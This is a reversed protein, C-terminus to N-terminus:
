VNEQTFAGFMKSQLTMSITATNADSLQPNVLLAEIKGVWFWMSNAVTGLGTTSCAHGSDGTPPQSNLLAFRFVTSFKKELIIGLLSTASWEAPVYNITIEMNPADSQGQIQQSTAQGYVPVNVINPPTGIAPFERVNKIRIFKGAAGTGGQSEIAGTFLGAFETYLDYGALQEPTFLQALNLTPTVPVAVSLDSYMGAGISTIHAM